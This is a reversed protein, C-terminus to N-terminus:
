CGRAPRAQSAGASRASWTSIVLAVGAEAQMAWHRARLAAGVAELAERSQRGAWYDEQARKLERQLGIRPFGLNHIITM